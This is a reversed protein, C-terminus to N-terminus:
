LPSRGRQGQYYGLGTDGSITGRKDGAMGVMEVLLEESELAQERLLPLTHTDM